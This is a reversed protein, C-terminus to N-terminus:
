AAQLRCKLRNEATDPIHWSGPTQSCRSGVVKKIRQHLNANYEFDIAIRNEGCHNVLKYTISTAM